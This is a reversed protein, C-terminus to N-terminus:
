RQSPPKSLYKLRTAHINPVLPSRMFKCYRNRPYLSLPVASTHEEGFSPSERRGFPTKCDSELAIRVNWQMKTNPSRATEVPRGWFGSPGALTFRGGADM